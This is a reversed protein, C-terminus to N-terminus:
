TFWIRPKLSQKGISLPRLLQWIQIFIMKCEEAHEGLYRAILVGNLDTISVLGSTDNEHLTARIRETSEKRLSAPKIIKSVSIIFTGFVPYGALGAQNNLLNNDRSVNSLSEKAPVINIRDHYVLIDDIFIQNLQQFKGNVFSQDSYPLGLCTIDWGLYSSSGTLHIDVTNTADAGDYIITEFPFNELIANDAVKFENVQSQKPDGISLDERARYFRNAGPTTVLVHACEEIKVSFHLEDGSVIGAPPYLLYVHACDKGEPYFAKQVFLPGQRKQETLKTGQPTCNFTLKLNSLWKYKQQPSNAKCIPTVM